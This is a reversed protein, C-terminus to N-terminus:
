DAPADAQQTASAGGGLIMAAGILYGFDYWGGSNPYAYIRIDTFFSGVLSFPMLFGHVLGLLFGPDSVPNTPQTACGTALLALAAVLM